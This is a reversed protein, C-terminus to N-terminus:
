GCTLCQFPKQGTHQTMHKCYDEIQNFVKNCHECDHEVTRSIQPIAECFASRTQKCDCFVKGCADCQNYLIKEESLNHKKKHRNCSSPTKFRKGCLVCPYQLEGSHALKHYWLSSANFYEKGCFECHYDEADQHYKMHLKLIHIYAFSKGCIMCKHPKAGAHKLEHMELEYLSHSLKGCITCILKQQKHKVTGSSSRRRDPVHRKLHTKLSSTYSFEKGCVACKFEKTKGHMEVHKQLNWASHFSEGCETCAFSAINEDKMKTLSKFALHKWRKLRRQHAKQKVCKFMGSRKLSDTIFSSENATVCDVGLTVEVEPNSAKHDCQNEVNEEDSMAVCDVERDFAQLANGNDSGRWIYREQDKNVISGREDVRHSQNGGAKNCKDGEKIPSEFLQSMLASERKSCTVKNAANCTLLNIQKPTCAPAKSASNCSRGDYSEKKIEMELQIQKCLNIVEEMKLHEAVSIIDDLHLMEIILCSTYCFDLLPLFSTKSFGALEVVAEQSSTAGKETFLDQFYKSNAALVSKHARYEEGEILLAIDCFKNLNRQENLQDLVVQSHGTSTQKVIRQLEAQNSHIDTFRKENGRVHQVRMNDELNNQCPAAATTKGGRAAELGIESDVLQDESLHHIKDAGSRCVECQKVFESIQSLIGRWWYGSSVNFGTIERSYHRGSRSIHCRWFIDRQRLEDVVVELEDLRGSDRRRRQYFLLGDRFVYCAAAKRIARKSHETTGPAYPQKKDTLYRVIARYNEASTM